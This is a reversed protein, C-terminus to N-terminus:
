EQYLYSFHQRLLGVAKHIDTELNAEDAELSVMIFEVVKGNPLTCEVLDHTQTAIIKM